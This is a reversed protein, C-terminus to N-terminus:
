SDLWHHPLLDRLLLAEGEPVLIRTDLNARDVQVLLERCRGCPTLIAKECCAVLTAVRREGGKIMEAVAAHEACFGIGCALHVCIGTYLNGATSLLACGVTAADMDPCALTMPRVLGRAARILAEDEM